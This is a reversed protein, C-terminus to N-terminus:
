PSGGIDESVVSASEVSTESDMTGETIGVLELVGELVVSGGVTVSWLLQCRKPLYSM